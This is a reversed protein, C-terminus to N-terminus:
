LFVKSNSPNILCKVGVFTETEIKSALATVVPTPLNVSFTNELESLPVGLNDLGDVEGLEKSSPTKITSTV